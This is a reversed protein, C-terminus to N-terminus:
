KLDPWHRDGSFRGISVASLVLTTIVQEVQNSCTNEPSRGCPTLRETKKQKMFPLLRRGQPFTSIAGNAIELRPPFRRFVPTQNETNEV